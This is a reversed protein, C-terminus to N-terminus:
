VVSDEVVPAYIQKLLAFEDFIMWEEVIRGDRVGYHTIGLLRVRKGTPEGYPGSGEHTGVLTWRVAASYGAEEDGNWCVHDMSIRADPFAGLLALVHARYDELGYLTRNDTTHCLHNDVYYDGIRGLLRGNWIEEVSRRLFNEIDFGDGSPPIEPAYPSESGGMEGPPYQVGRIVDKKAMKKALEHPDFGLQRVLAIEDRAIWEEIIRNERVFCHAIGTRVVKRGTPPGYRSHGTNHGVWVIRHSSHFGDVDNGGWIVDDAYLRIDPFAALTKTSESVVRESGRVVGDSTWIVVDHGYYDPIRGIGKGEWIRHTIRVIYDVIDAFEEDFGRMGQPRAGVPSLLGRVERRGLAVVPEGVGYLAPSGAASM